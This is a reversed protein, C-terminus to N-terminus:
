WSNRHHRRDEKDKDEGVQELCGEGIWSDNGPLPLTSSGPHKNRIGSCFKKWGPDRIRM